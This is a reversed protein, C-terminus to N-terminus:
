INPDDFKVYLTGELPNAQPIELKMITGTAGNVLGDETDVNKTQMYKANLAVQIENGLGGTEHPNTSTVTVPVRKTHLDRKSDKAKIKFVETPLLRLQKENYDDKLANTLFVSLCGEPVNANKELEKLQNIDETTQEGLRVRSLIEAFRPDGKQRVIEKLEYITFMDWVSSALAAYGKTQSKYVPREGVPNLQMLDGVALVSVRGFPEENEFIEQLTLNLNSFTQAGVMSIEDIILIKMQCYTSRMTNLAASSPHRYVFQSGRQKVPLRFANHLTTGGINVAAKGTPATLLVTPLDTKHGAKRLTRVATQYITHIAHSKGVGAGGSLFIYFPDPEEETSSALSMRRCWTFIHDHIDRQKDNLSPVMALYKHRPQVDVNTTLARQKRPALAVDDEEVRAALQESSLNEPDLLQYDPDTEVPQDRDHELQPALQDWIEKRLAKWPSAFKVPTNYKRLILNM